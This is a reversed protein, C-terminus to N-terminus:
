PPLCSSRNEDDDAVIRVEFIDWSVVLIIFAAAPIEGTRLVRDARALNACSAAATILFSSSAVAISISSMADGGLFRCLTVVVVLVVLM